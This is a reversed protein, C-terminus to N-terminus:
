QETYVLRVSKIHPFVNDRYLRLKNVGAVSTVAGQPFVKQNGTGWGGTRESLANPNITVGNFSMIVPRAEDAAYEIDIRYNCSGDSRFSFEVMNEQIKSGDGGNTIVEGYISTGVGINKADSYENAAFIKSKCKPPSATTAQVVTPSTAAPASQSSVTTPVRPGPAPETRLTAIIGGIAVIIAAIGGLIAPLTEWWHKTNNM